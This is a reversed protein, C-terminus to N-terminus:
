IHILSLKMAEEPIGVSQLVIVLLILGVGPVGAAGISALSATLVITLQETFGLDIGQTVTEATRQESGGQGIELLLRM